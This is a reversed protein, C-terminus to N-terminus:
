FGVTLGPDGFLNFLYLELVCTGDGTGYHGIMNLKASNVVHGIVHDGALMDDFAGMSLQDNYGGYSVRASGWYAVAGRPAAAAYSKVWTESFCDGGAWDYCGTLCTPSIIVPLLMGNALANVNANSFGSTWWLNEAGHGRYSVLLRGNNIAAAVNAVTANGLSAYLKDVTFGHAVLRGYNYNSTVEFYGSDSLCLARSKWAGAAPTKEYNVTKAVIHTVEAETRASFRGIALDPLLDDGSVLAYYYDSVTSGVANSFSYAPMTNTDGVLLVYEVSHDAYASKIYNRIQLATPAAGIASLKTVKVVLGQSRRWAVLPEIEEAYADPVLILYHWKLKPFHDHIWDRDFILWDSRLRDAIQLERNLIEPTKSQEPTKEIKRITTPQKLVKTARVFPRSFTLEVEVDPTVTLTRKAGNYQMAAIEVMVVTIDRLKMPKSVTVLESPYKQDRLYFDKAFVFKMEKMHPLANMQEPVPEQVPYVQVDSLVSESASKVTFSVKAGEPVVVLRRVVPLEPRGVTPTIGAGPVDLRVFDVDDRRIKALEYGSVALKLSARAETLTPTLKLPAKQPSNLAKWQVDPMEALRSVPMREPSAGTQGVVLNCLVLLPVLAIARCARWTRSKTNM